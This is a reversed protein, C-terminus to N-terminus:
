NAAIVVRASAPTGVTLGSNSTLFVDVNEANEPSVGDAIPTVTLTVSSAGAPIFVQNGLLTYDVGGHASGTATFTVRLAVTTPGTRTITFTGTDPGAESAASDTAVITVTPKDNDAITVTAAAPSGVTYAADPQVTVDVTEPGEFETDNVPAVAVTASAQGAAITM